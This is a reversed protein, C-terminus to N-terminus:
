KFQYRLCAIQIEDGRNLAVAENNKLLVGCVMTGNTSNLDTICYAEGTRDIRIHLRSVTEHNLVYDVLREQKGIVFPYYSILIDEGDDDLHCLRRTDEQSPTEYLLVTNQGGAVEEQQKAFEWEVSESRTPINSYREESFVDGWEPLAEAKSNKDKKKEAIKTALWSWIGPEKVKKNKATAPYDPQVRHSEGPEYEPAEEGEGEGEVNKQEMTNAGYLLKLIDEMGFNEKRTEQYLGYALVVSEKDQHNVKGLFYELLKGYAEPFKHELGPVICLWVKFTEPEVYIYEPELWISDERLLYTEMQNLANTIGIVMKRIEAGSLKRNELLRGLPQKSTIEYYFQPEGDMQELRFRLFGEIINEQMMKCEYTSIQQEKPQVILYNRKLERQYSVNM